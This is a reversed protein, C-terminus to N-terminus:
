IARLKPLLRKANDYDIGKLEAKTLGLKALAETNM